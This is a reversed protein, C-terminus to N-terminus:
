GCRSLSLNFRSPAAGDVAAKEILPLREPPLIRLVTIRSHSTASVTLYPKVNEYRQTEGREREEEEEGRRFGERLACSLTEHGSKIPL